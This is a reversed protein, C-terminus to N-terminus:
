LENDKRNVYMDHVLVAPLFLNSDIVADPNLEKAVARLAARNAAMIIVINGNFTRIATTMGAYAKCPGTVGEIIEQKFGTVYNTM